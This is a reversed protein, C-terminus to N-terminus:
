RWQIGTKDLYHQISNIVDGYSDPKIAFDVGMAAYAAIEKVNHTTSYMVVHIAAYTPNKRIAELTQRGDMLPMNVDLFICKPLRPYTELAKLAEIGNRATACVVTKSIDAVAECFLDLDDQDDDVIMIDM